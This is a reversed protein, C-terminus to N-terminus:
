WLAAGSFLCVVSRVSRMRTIRPETVLDRAEPRPVLGLRKAVADLVGNVFAASETTGYRRAVEVAENIAIEMPLGHTLEYVAIRIVTADIQALRELKWNESAAEVQADIDIRQERFV